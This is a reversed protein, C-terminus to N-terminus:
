PAPQQSATHSQATTSVPTLSDAPPTIAPETALAPSNAFCYLRRESRVFLAGHAIAPTAQCRERLRNVALVKLSPGLALVYINGRESVVYLKGGGAVLSASHSRHLQKEWVLEGNAVSLCRLTGGDTILYLLNNDILGTPVYPGGWPLRWVVHSKTVDGHGGPKIAFIPGNPGSTSVVLSDGVIATPCPIDTTGKVRWLEDGTLPAYAIVYGPTGNTSGTGNVVVAWDTHGDHQQRVLVPTTWSGSSKRPTAWVLEGSYCSLAVLRSGCSGDALQIVLDGSVIPSSAQGWEHELQHLPTHWLRQGDM